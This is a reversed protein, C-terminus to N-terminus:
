DFHPRINSIQISNKGNVAVKAYDLQYISDKSTQEFDVRESNIYLTFSEVDEDIRIFFEGQGSYGDFSCISNMALTDDLDRSYEPFVEFKQWDAEPLADIQRIIVKEEKLTEEEKGTNDDDAKENCAAICLTILM